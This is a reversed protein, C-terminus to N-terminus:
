FSPFNQVRLAHHTFLRAPLTTDVVVNLLELVTPTADGPLLIHRLVPLRRGGLRRIDLPSILVRRLEHGRAFYVTRLSFGSEKSVALEVREFGLGRHRPRGEVIVCDEGAILEEGLRRYTLEGPTIPRMEGLTILDFIPEQLLVPNIRLVKRFRPIYVFVDDSRQDRQLMLVAWKTFAAPERFDILVEASGSEWRRMVVYRASAPGKRAEYAEFGDFGFLRAFHGDGLQAAELGEFAPAPAPSAAVLLLLAVLWAGTQPLVRRM